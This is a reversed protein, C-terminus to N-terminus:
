PITKDEKNEKVRCGRDRGKKLSDNAGAQRDRGGDMEGPSVKAGM